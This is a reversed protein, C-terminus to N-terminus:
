AAAAAVVTILLEPSAASLRSQQMAVQEAATFRSDPTSPAAIQVAMFLFVAAVLGFGIGPWRLWGDEVGGWKQKSLLYLQM